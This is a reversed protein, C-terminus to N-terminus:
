KVIGLIRKINKLCEYAEKQSEFCNGEKISSKDSVKVVRLKKIDYEDQTEIEIKFFSKLNDKRNNNASFCRKIDQLINNLAKPERRVIYNKCNPNYIIDKIEINIWDDKNPVVLCSCPEGVHFDIRDRILRNQIQMRDGNNIEELENRPSIKYALYRRRNNDKIETTTKGDRFDSVLLDIYKDQIAEESEIYNSNEFGDPFPASVRITQSDAIETHTKGIKDKSQNFVAINQTADIKLYNSFVNRDHIHSYLHDFGGAAGDCFIYEVYININHNTIKKINENINSIYENIQSIYQEENRIINTGSIILIQLEKAIESCNIYNSIIERINFYNRDNKLLYRDAIIISTCPLGSDKFPAFFSEWKKSKDGKEVFTKTKKKLVGINEIIDPYLSFVGYKEQINSAVDKDDLFFIAKSLGVEVDEGKILRDIMNKGSRLLNPDGHVPVTNPDDPIGSSRLSDITDNDADIYVQVSKNNMFRNLDSGDNNYKEYLANSIYFDIM